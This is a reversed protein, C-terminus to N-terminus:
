RSSGDDDPALAAWLGGLCVSRFDSDHVAGRDTLDTLDSGFEGDFPPLPVLLLSRSTPPLEQSM